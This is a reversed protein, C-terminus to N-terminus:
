PIVQQGSILRCEGLINTVRLLYLHAGIIDHQTVCLAHGLVYQEYM